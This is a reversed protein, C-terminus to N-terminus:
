IELGVQDQETAHNPRYKGAAQTVGALGALAQLDTEVAQMATLEGATFQSQINNDVIAARIAAVITEADLIPQAVRLHWLNRITAAKKADAIAM